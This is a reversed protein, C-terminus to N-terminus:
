ITRPLPFSCGLGPGQAQLDTFFSATGSNLDIFVSERSGAPSLMGGLSGNAQLSSHSGALSQATGM